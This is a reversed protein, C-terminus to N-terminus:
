NSYKLLFSEALTDGLSAAIKFDEVALKMDGLYLNSLGRYYYADAFQPNLVNVTSFDRKALIYDSIELYAKGRLFYLEANFPEVEIASNLFKIAGGFNENEISQLALELFSPQYLNDVLITEAPNIEPCINWDDGEISVGPRKPPQREPNYKIALKTPREIVRPHTNIIRNNDYNRKIREILGSEQGRGGTKIERQPFAGISFLFIITSITLLTKM